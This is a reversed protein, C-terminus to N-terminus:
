YMFTDIQLSPPNGILVYQLNHMYEKCVKQIDEPTVKQIREKMRAAQEYGRGGLEFRALLEAQSANTEVTLYYGTLLQNAQDRVEKPSVLEDQMRRLEHLMVAITTDPSVTTVYLTGHNAIDAALGAAPAYSLSRKTRVEQFLRNHLVSTALRFAYFDDTGFAPAPFYGVIYNTPLERKVIKMSPAPHRVGAPVKTTFSGANLDGFSIRVMGELANRDVNGSVVLVVQPKTLRRRLYERLDGPTFGTVTEETGQVEMAYPHNRFFEQMALRQLYQDPDDKAQRIGSLIRGRILEVDSPECSPNRLVDTFIKWSEALNQKVCQMTMASYDITTMPALRTDMRELAANLKNKPYNKSAQRAVALAMAEIGAEKAQLVAVGGRFYLNVAVIDTATSRNLIVKLGNVTFSEAAHVRLAIGTTLLIALIILRTKM